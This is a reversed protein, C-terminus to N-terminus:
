IHNFKQKKLCSKKTYGQSAPLKSFDVQRQTKTVHKKSYLSVMVLAVRILVVNLQPQSVPESTCDMIM